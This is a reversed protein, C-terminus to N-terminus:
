VWYNRLIKISFCFLQYNYLFNINFCVWVNNSARLARLFHKTEKVTISYSTIVSLLQILLDSIMPDANPLLELCVSILGVRSCAELNRFSKRVIAVFVSWIEAQMSLPATEILDLMKEINSSSEIIFRSELDFPGGVLVNFLGDIIDKQSLSSDKLGSKLRKFTDEASEDSNHM